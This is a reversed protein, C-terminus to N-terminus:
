FGTEFFFVRPRKITSGELTRVLVVKGCLISSQATAEKEKRQSRKQNRLEGGGERTWV